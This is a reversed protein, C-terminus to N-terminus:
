DRTASHHRYAVAFMARGLSSADIEQADGTAIAAAEREELEELVAHAVAPHSALVKAAADMAMHFGRWMVELDKTETRSM